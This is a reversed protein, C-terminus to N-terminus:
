TPQSRQEKKQNNIITLLTNAPASSATKSLQFAHPITPTISEGKYFNHIFLMVIALYTTKLTGYNKIEFQVM